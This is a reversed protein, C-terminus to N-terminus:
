RIVTRCGSILQIESITGSKLTQCAEGNLTVTNGSLTWGDDENKPVVEGDFYVNLESEYQPRELLELKCNKAVESGITRIAETLEDLSEVDFYAREGSRPKGGAIALANMADDFDEDGLVGIVYTPVGARSLRELAAASADADECYGGPNQLVEGSHEPDCCNFDDDCLIGDISNRAQNLVCSETGCVATPNCNPAGDTVLVLSTASEVGLVQPTLQLLTPSLPTGGRPKLRQLTRRFRGLVPGDPAQNLCLIPDGPQLAFVEEGPSCGILPLPSNPGLESLDPEEEGPFTTLGFKARHGIEQAVAGLASKAADIKTEDGRLVLSSMSASIDLVFYISPKRETLRVTEEGCAASTDVQKPKECEEAETGGSSGPLSSANGGWAGDPPAQYAGPRETEGQCAVLLPFCLLQPTLRM